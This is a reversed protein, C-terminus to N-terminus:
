IIEGFCMAQYGFQMQYMTGIIGVITIKVVIIIRTIVVTSGNSFINAWMLVVETFYFSINEPETIGHRKRQTSM